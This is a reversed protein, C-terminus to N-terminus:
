GWRGWYSGCRSGCSGPPLFARVWGKGAGTAVTWGLLHTRPALPTPNSTDQRWERQSLKGVEEEAPLLGKSLGRFKEAAEAMLKGKARLHTTAVRPPHHSIGHALPWAPGASPPQVQRRM